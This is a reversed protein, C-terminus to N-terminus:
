VKFVDAFLNNACLFNGFSKSMVYFTSTHEKQHNIKHVPILNWRIRTWDKLITLPVTVVNRDASQFFNPSNSSEYLCETSYRESRIMCSEQFSDYCNTLALLCALLSVNFFTM